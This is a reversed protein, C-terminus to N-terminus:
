RLRGQVTGRVKVREGLRDLGTIELRYRGREFSRRRGLRVTREGKKLQACPPRPTSSAARATSGCSPTACAPAASTSSSRCAGSTTAAPRAPSGRGPSGRASSRRPTARRPSGAARAARRRTSAAAAATSSASTARRRSASRRPARSCTTPGWASGCRAARARRARDDGDARALRPDRLRARPRRGADRRHLRRADLRRRRQGLDAAARRQRPHAAALRHRPEPVAAHGPRGGDGDRQRAARPDPAQRARRAHAAGGPRRARAHLDPDPRRAALPGRARGRARRGRRPPRGPRLGPHNPPVRVSVANGPEVADSAGGDGLGACANPVTHNVGGPTTTLEPQVFLALDIPDLTRGAADM